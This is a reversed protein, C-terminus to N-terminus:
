TFARLVGLHEEACYTGCTAEGDDEGPCEVDLHSARLQL